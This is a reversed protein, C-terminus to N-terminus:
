GEYLYTDEKGGTRGVKGAQHLYELHAMIEMAAMWQMMLSYHRFCGDQYHWRMKGTVEYACMPRATRALIGRIQALREEHHAFMEDIRALPAKVEGRHSPYLHRIELQRIKNLSTFYDALSNYEEGYFGINPTIRNLLHDGAFLIKQDRDYLGIMGPMHGKLDIIELRYTGYDLVEGEGVTNVQAPRVARPVDELLKLDALRALPMGSKLFSNQLYEDYPVHGAKMLQRGDWESCYIPGFKPSLFPLAECHDRHTHTIVIDTDATSRKLRKFVQLLASTSEERAFGTDILCNRKEGCILYVSIENLSSGALPLRIEYLNEALRNQPPSSNSTKGFM